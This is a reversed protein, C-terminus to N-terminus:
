VADNLDDLVLPQMASAVWSSSTREELTEQCINKTKVFSEIAYATLLLM